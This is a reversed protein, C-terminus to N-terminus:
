LGFGPLYVHMFEELQLPVPCKMRKLSQLERQAAAKTRHEVAPLRNLKRWAELTRRQQRYLQRAEEREAETMDARQNDLVSVRFLPPSYRVM